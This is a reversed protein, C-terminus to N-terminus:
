IANEIYNLTRPCHTFLITTEPHLSLFRKLKQHTNVFDTWSDFFLKVIKMPMIDKAFADFHWAADTAYIIQKGNEEHIFGLMGAAHGSIAILKFEKQGFIEYTLLGSEHEEPTSVSELILVREFFNEPLFKKIIGRRVASLGNVKKLQELSAASCIFRAKPFLRLGCIHDAHFHSIIIYDIDEASLGQQKLLELPHEEKSFTVPTAFRHLREPFVSTEKNFLDCYGTDFLITGIGPLRILAWVAYFRSIGKKASPNVVRTHAECYGSAFYKVTAGQVM